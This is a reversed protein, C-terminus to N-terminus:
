PINRLRTRASEDVVRHFDFKGVAMVVPVHMCGVDSIGLPAETSSRSGKTGRPAERGSYQDLPTRLTSCKFPHTAGRVIREHPTAVSRAAM